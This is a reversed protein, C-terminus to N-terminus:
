GSKLLCLKLLKTKYDRFKILIQNQQNHWTEIGYCIQSYHHAYYLKYRHQKPLLNEDTQFCM